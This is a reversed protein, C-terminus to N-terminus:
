DSELNITTVSENLTVTQAQFSHGKARATLVYTRGGPIGKIGFNGFSNTRTSFSRGQEDTVLVQANAIPSGGPTSVRGQVAVGAATTDLINVQGSIPNIPLVNGLPDNIEMPLPQTVFDIPTSGNAAAGNIQFTLVFVQKPGPTFTAGINLTMSLGVRGSALQTVNTDFTTGPLGSADPGLAANVYTLVSSDFQVSATVGNENGGSDLELPVVVFDGPQGIQDVVRIDGAALNVNKRRDNTVTDPVFYTLPALSSMTSPGGVPTLTSNSIYLRLVTVDASTLTGGGKSGAPSVDARQFENFAPNPSLSGAVFQRLITTDAGSLVGNGTNRTALDGEYGQPFVVLGDLYNSPLSNGEADNVDRIAPSDTIAVPTNSASGPTTNFTVVVVQRGNGSSFVTDHTFEVGLSGLSDNYSLDCDIADNGCTIGSFDLLSPDYTLSFSLGKETGLSDLTVPVQVTGNGPGSSQYSTEVRLNRPVAGTDYAVFDADPVNQLVNVYSRNTPDFVKGTMGPVILFTGNVPVGVNFVYNGGGSTVTTQNSSGSLQVTVGDIGAGGFQSINGSISIFQGSDAITGIASATDITAGSVNSLGITFDETGEAITDDITPVTITQNLTTTGAAFMVTGATNSYDVGDTATGSATAYDVTVPITSQGSLTVTFVNDTSPEAGATTQAISVTPTPEFNFVKNESNIGVTLDDVAADGVGDTRFLLASFATAPDTGVDIHLRMNPYAALMQARTCPNGQGCNLLPASSPSTIWFLANPDTVDWFEWTDRNEARVADNMSPTYNVRGQWGDNGGAGDYDVNFQLDPMGGAAGTAYYANYTLKTIDAFRTGGFESSMFAIEQTGMVSSRMGASGYGAPPTGPGYMFDYANIYQNTTDNYYRWHEAAANGDTVRVPTEDVTFTTTFTGTTNGNGGSFDFAVNEPVTIVVDGSNAMGSITVTYVSASDATFGVNLAGGTTTGTWDIDNVDFGTVDETFTITYTLPSSDSTAAGTITVGPRVSDYTVSVTNSVTNANGADDTMVGANVTVGVTGQGGATVDFTCSNAVNQQFNSATGNTVTASASTLTACTVPDAFDVTFNLVATNTPDPGAYSLLATPETGDYVVSASGETASVTNPVGSPDGFAINPNVTATVSGDGAPAVTLTYHASDIQTISTFTANVLTVDTSDDFDTVPETFTVTFPISTSNTPTGTTASISAEPVSPEFDFSTNSSNVGVVLNDVAANSNGQVRFLLAGLTNHIGMNPHDALMEALTCPDGATCESPFPALNSYWFLSSPTVIDWTQWTDNTVTGNQSPVWVVRGQYSVDSDTLDFDVNFQLTPVDGASSSDVYTMYSLQTIDALDTGNFSSTGFTLLQSPNGPISVSTRLGASGIGNTVGTPGFMFDYGAIPANTSDNYYSWFQGPASSPTVTVGTEGANFPTILENSATNGNGSLDNASNEPVSIVVNGNNAMGTVVVTYNIQDGTDTVTASLIGGTTGSGLEVDNAAFGTVPENFEVNYTVSSTDSTTYTITASPRADDFTAGVTASATNDNGAADTTAGANVTASVTGNSAATVTFTCTNPASQQINSVTGNVATVGAATFCSVDETFVAEFELEDNNTPDVGLYSLTVGPAINDFDVSDTGGNSTPAGGTVANAASAAINLTLMGDQGADPTFTVTYVTPGGTVTPTGSIGTFVTDTDDFGTVPESFTVTFTIPQNTPGAPSHTISDLTPVVPEFDFTKFVSSTGVSVADVSANSADDSRFGIFGYLPNASIGLNPFAALLESRTCRNGFNCVANIPAQTAYYLGDDVNWFQWTGTAVTGQDSPVWVIRGKWSTDSDTVDDDIGFQAYPADGNTVYAFYSFHNLEDFRTGNFEQTAFLLKTTGVSSPFMRASGIGLPPATPGYAYDNPSIIGEPAVDNWYYWGNTTSPIHTDPLAPACTSVATLFPDFDVNSSVEDGDGTPAPGNAAGWYNNEGNVSGATYNMIGFNNGSFNNQSVTVSSPSGGANPNIVVANAAGTFTNCAVNPASVLGTLRVGMSSVPNNGQVYNGSVSVGTIEGATGGTSQNTISIATQSSGLKLFRNNLVQVNSFKGAAGGFGSNVSISSGILTNGEYHQAAAIDEGSYTMNFVSSSSTIVNDLVEIGGLAQEILIPNYGTGGVLNNEFVVPGRPRYTWVGYDQDGIGSIKSNSVTVTSNTSLPKILIAVRTGSGGPNTVTFGSFTTDGDISAPTELKVVSGSLGQGDIITSDRDEGIVNIARDVLVQGTASIGSGPTYIGAAVHVTGGPLTNDVATQISTLEQGIRGDGNAAAADDVYTDKRGSPSPNVPVQVSIYANDNNGSLDLYPSFHAIFAPNIPTTSNDDSDVLAIDAGCGNCTQDFTNGSMDVIAEALLWGKTGHSINNTISGMNVNGAAGNIYAPQRFGTITNSDILLGTATGSIEFARTVLGGSWPTTQTFDNDRATFNTGQVQIVNQVAATDTKVFDLGEITVNDALVTFILSTGSVNITPKTTEANVISLGAFNLTTNTSQTYTGPCVKITYNASAAAVASPITSYAPVNAGCDFATGLGDDDVVLELTGTFYSVVNDTSTSATNANANGSDDTAAGAPISATVTGASTATITVTYNAAPGIAPLVTISSIGASSGTTDIDTLDFNNVDESFVVDFTIAPNSTPDDQGAAQDIEVTPAHQDSITVNTTATADDIQGTVIATTEVEFPGGATLTTGSTAIGATFTDSNASISSPTESGTAPPADTVSYTLPLGDLVHDTATCVDESASNICLNFGSITSDDGSNIPYASATGASLTLWPSSTVLVTSDCGPDNSPGENCGWFNNEAAVSSVNITNNIGTGNNSIRNFHASAVPNFGDATDEDNMLIGSSTFGTISNRQIDAVSSLGAGDYATVVIGNSGNSLRNDTIVATGEDVDIGSYRTQEITNGTITGTKGPTWSYVGGDNNTIGPNNKVTIDGSSYSLVAYSWDKTPGCNTPHDCLNNTITNGEITATAGWIVTIGNQATYPQPGEGTITSNKIIANSGLRSIYIGSKQYSEVTVNDLEVSGTTNFSGQWGAVIARGNQLGFNNDNFDRIDRVTVHDMKINAGASAFVGFVPNGSTDVRGQITLNSISSEYNGFAEVISRANFIGNNLTSPAQILTGSGSGADYEGEGEIFLCKDIRFQQIFLGSGLHITDGEFAANIAAQISSGAPVNIPANGSATCQPALGEGDITMPRAANRDSTLNEIGPSVPRGHRETSSKASSFFSLIYQSVGFFSSFDGPYISQANSKAPALSIFAFILLSGLLAVAFKRLNRFSFANNTFKFFSSVRSAFGARDQSYM